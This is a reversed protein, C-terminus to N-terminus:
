PELSPDALKKEFESAANARVALALYLMAIALCAMPWYRITLGWEWVLTDLIMVPTIAVVTLRLLAPYSSSNAVRRSDGPRV